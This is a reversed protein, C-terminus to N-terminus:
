PVVIVGLALAAASWIPLLVSADARHRHAADTIGALHAEEHSQLPVHILM